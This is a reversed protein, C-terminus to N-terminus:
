SYIVQKWISLYGNDKISMGKDIYMSDVNKM